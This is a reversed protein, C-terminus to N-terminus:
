SEPIWTEGTFGRLTLWAYIKLFLFYIQSLLKQKKDAMYVGWICMYYQMVINPRPNDMNKNRKKKDFKTVVVNPHAQLFFYQLHVFKNDFM